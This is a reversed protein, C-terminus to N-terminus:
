YILLLFSIVVYEPIGKVKGDKLNYIDYNCNENASFYVITSQIRLHFCM